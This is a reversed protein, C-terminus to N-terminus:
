AMNGQKWWPRPQEPGAPTEQPHRTRADPKAAAWHDTAMRSAMGLCVARGRGPGHDLYLAVAAALLADASGFDPSDSLEAVRGAAQGLARRANESPTQGQAAIKAAALALDRLHSRMDTGASM